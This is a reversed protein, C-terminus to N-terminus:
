TGSKKVKRFADGNPTLGDTQVFQMDYTSDYLDSLPYSKGIQADIIMVKNNQVEYSLAHGSNYDKWMVTIIGHSGNGGKLIEKETLKAEQTTDGGSSEVISNYTRNGEVFEMKKYSSHKPTGDYMSLIEAIEDQTNYVSNYQSVVDGVKSVENVDIEELYRDNNPRAEVDYGKTRLDYALACNSCNMAYQHYLKSDVEGTKTYKDYMKAYEPNTKSVNTKSDTGTKLLKLTADNTVKAVKSRNQAQKDKTRIGEKLIKAQKLLSADKTRNKEVYKQEAKKVAEERKKKDLPHKLTEILGGSAVFKKAKNVNNKVRQNSIAQQYGEDKQINRQMSVSKRKASEAKSAALRARQRNKAMQSRIEQIRKQKAADPKANARGTEKLLQQLEAGLVVNDSDAKASTVTEMVALNNQKRQENRNYTYVWKGNKKERKVWKHNPKTWGLRFHMLQDSSYLRGEYIYYDGM